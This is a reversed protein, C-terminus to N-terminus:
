KAWCAAPCQTITGATTTVGCATNVAADVGFAYYLTACSTGSANDKNQGGTSKATAGITYTTTTGNSPAVTYYSGTYPNSPFTAATCTADGFTTAYSTCDARFREQNLAIQQMAGEVDSRRAKRIQALYSPLAIGALIAIIAVVVMLELLTFGSTRRV